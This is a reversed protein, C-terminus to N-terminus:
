SINKSQITKYEKLNLKYIDRKINTNIIPHKRETIPINSNFGKMSHKFQKDDISFFKLSNTGKNNSYIYNFSNRNRSPISKKSFLNMNLKNEKKEIIPFKLNLKPLVNDHLIPPIHSKNQNLTHKQYPIAIKMAQQLTQQKLQQTQLNTNDNIKDSENNHINRSKIIAKTFSNCKRHIILNTNSHNNEKNKESEKQVILINKNKLELKLPAKNDLVIKKCKTYRKSRDYNNTYISNINESQNSSKIEKQLKQLRLVLQQYSFHAGGEYYDKEQDNGYFYGKYEKNM